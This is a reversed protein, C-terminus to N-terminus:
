KAEDQLKQLERAQAAADEGEAEPQTQQGSLLPNHLFLALIFMVVVICIATITLIRQMYRYSAIIADREPSGIVYEPVVFLPAAYVSSALTANNFPALNKKLEDFLRQSWIAGSVCNGFAQGISNVTFVLSILVGVYQHRAATQIMILTPWSFFGAATGIVIEGGIIGSKSGSGGRYHYILGGGVFWLLIGALIVHKLRRLKIVVAGLISGVVVACFSYLSAVRTAGEISFNYSVLLLTFLYNGHVM